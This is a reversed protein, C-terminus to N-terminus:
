NDTRDVVKAIVDGIFVRLFRSQAPTFPTLRVGGAQDVARDLGEQLVKQLEEETIKM